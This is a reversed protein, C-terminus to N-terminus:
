DCNDLLIKLRKKLVDYIDECEDNLKYILHITDRIDSNKPHVVSSSTLFKSSASLGSSTQALLYLINVLPNINNAIYQAECTNLPLKCLEDKISNINKLTDATKDISKNISSDSKSNEDELEEDYNEIISPESVPNTIPVHQENLNDNQNNIM